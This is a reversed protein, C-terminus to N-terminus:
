YTAQHSPHSFPILCVLIADSNVHNGKHFDLKKKIITKEKNKCDYRSIACLYPTWGTDRAIPIIRDTGKEKKTEEEQRTNDIEM